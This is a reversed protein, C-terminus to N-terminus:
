EILVWDTENDGKGSLSRVAQYNWCCNLVAQLAKSAENGALFEVTSRSWCKM